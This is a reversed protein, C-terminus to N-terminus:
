CHDQIIKRQLLQLIEREGEGEEEGQGDGEGRGGSEGQKVKQSLTM